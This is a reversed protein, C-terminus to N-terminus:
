GHMEAWDPEFEQAFKECHTCQEESNYNYNPMQYKSCYFCPDSDTFNHYGKEPDKGREAFISSDIALTGHEFNFSKMCWGPYNESQNIFAIVEKKIEDFDVENAYVLDAFRKRRRNTM